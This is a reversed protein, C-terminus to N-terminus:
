STARKLQEPSFVERFFLSSHYEDWYLCNKNKNFKHTDSAQLTQIIEQTKDSQIEYNTLANILRAYLSINDTNWCEEANHFVIWLKAKKASLFTVSVDFLAGDHAQVSYSCTYEGEQCIYPSEYVKLSPDINQIRNKYVTVYYEFDELSINVYYIDLIRICSICSIFLLCVICLCLWVLKKKM